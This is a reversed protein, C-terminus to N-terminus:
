KRDLNKFKITLLLHFLLRILCFVAILAAAIPFLFAQIPFSRLPGISRLISIFALAFLVTGIMGCLDKWMLYYGAWYGKEKFTKEAKQLLSHTHAPNSNDSAQTDQLLYDTSVSFLNSLRIIHVTDPTATGLEWKSITQRSVGLQNALQEQSLANKKRLDLLKESFTM